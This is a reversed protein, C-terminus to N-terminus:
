HKRVNYWFDCASKERLKRGPAWLLHINKLAMELGGFRGFKRSSTIIKHNSDHKIIQWSKHEKKGEEKLRSALSFEEAAYLDEDFGGVRQFAVRECYLFPGVTVNKLALLYNVIYKFMLYGLGKSDPEVWAGGGIVKGSSLNAEVRDLINGQFTTDADIFVLYDGRAQRAGANRARAIQNRGEFVVKAGLSEALAGTNDTSNNNVVIVDVSGAYNSAASFVSHLTDKIYEAENYAPIIISISPKLHKKTGSTVELASINSCSGARGQPLTDLSYFESNM